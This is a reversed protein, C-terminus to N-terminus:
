WWSNLANLVGVLTLENDGRPQSPLSLPTSAISCHTFLLSHFPATPPSSLPSPTNFGARVISHVGEATCNLLRLPPFSHHTHPPPPSVTTTLPQPISPILSSHASPAPSAPSRAPPSHFRLPTPLSQHISEVASQRGGEVMCERPTFEGLIARVGVTNSINWINSATAACCPSQFGGM